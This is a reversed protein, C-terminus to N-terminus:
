SSISVSSNSRESLSAKLWKLFTETKRTKKQAPLCLATYGAGKLQIEERYPVLLNRKVMDAVLTSNALAAGRGAIAAQLVNQEEEFRIITPNALQIEATYLWNKWNIEAFVDQQWATEILTAGNLGQPSDLMGPSVYAGFTGELLKTTDLGPYPGHGYRIAIDVRREKVLDLPTTTTDLQVRFGPNAVYFEVLSPVLCLTAFSATTSVTIVTEESVINELTNRIDLFARTLVPALEAGAPTLEILRTKRVFLQVQLQSELARIQHSVAASTVFLEQAAAKFSVLRAAAEFTRLASPSPLRGFM